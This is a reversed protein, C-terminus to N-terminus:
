LYLDYENLGMFSQHDRIKIKYEGSAKQDHQGSITLIMKGGANTEL